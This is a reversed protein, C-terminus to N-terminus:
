YWKPCLASTWVITIIKNILHLSCKQRHVRQTLKRKKRPVWRSKWTGQSIPTDHPHARALLTHASIIQRYFGGLCIKWNKRRGGKVFTAEKFTMHMIPWTSRPNYLSGEQLRFLCISGRASISPQLTSLLDSELEGTDSWGLPEKTEWSFSPPPLHIARLWLWTSFMALSSKQGSLPPKRSNYTFCIQKTWLWGVQICPGGLHGPSHHLCVTKFAAETPFKSCVIAKNKNSM